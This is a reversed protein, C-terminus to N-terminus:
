PALSNDIYIIFLAYNGIIKIIYNDELITKCIKDNMEYM